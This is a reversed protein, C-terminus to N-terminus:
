REGHREYSPSIVAQRARHYDRWFKWTNGEYPYQPNEKDWEAVLKPALRRREELSLDAVNVRENVFRLLKLTERKLRRAGRGDRLNRQIDCYVKQVTKASVWPEVKLTVFGYGFSDEGVGSSFGRFQWTFPAVWPPEGTLVFWVADSEEWPYRKILSSVRDHLDGLVTKPKVLVRNTHGDEGPYPLIKWRKKGRGFEVELERMPRENSRAKERKEPLEWMGARLLRRDKFSVVRSNPLPVEVLSYRGREDSMGETVEYTHDVVPVRKPEFHLRLSWHAAVPSTLLVWAQKPSLLKNDLYKVRFGKAEPYVEKPGEASQRIIAEEPVALKALYESFVRSREIDDESLRAPVEETSEPNQQPSKAPKYKKTAKYIRWAPDKLDEFAVEFTAGPGLDDEYIALLMEWAVDPYKRIGIFKAFERRMRALAKEDVKETGKISVNLASVPSYLVV